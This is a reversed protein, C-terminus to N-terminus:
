NLNDIVQNYVQQNSWWLYVVWSVVPITFLCLCILQTKISVSIDKSASEIVDLRRSLAYDLLIGTKKMKKLIKKQKDGIEKFEESHEM